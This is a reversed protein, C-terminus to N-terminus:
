IQYKISGDSNYEAYKVENGTQPGKEFIYEVYGDPHYSTYKIQKDTEPDYEAIYSAVGDPNYKITKTKKNNENLTTVSSLKDAFIIAHENNKFTRSYKMSGNLHYSTHKTPQLDAAYETIFKISGNDYYGEEKTIKETYPNCETICSILGNNKYVTEKALKGTQSDSEIIRKISNDNFYDTIKVVSGEQQGYDTISYSGDTNETKQNHKKLFDNWSENNYNGSNPNKNQFEFRQQLRSKAGNERTIRQKQKFIASKQDMKDMEKQKNEEIYDLNAQVMADQIEKIKARDKFKQDWKQTEQEREESTAAKYDKLCQDNKQKIDELENDNKHNKELNELFADHQDKLYQDYNDANPKKPNKPKPTRETPSNPENSKTNTVIFYGAIAVIIATIVVAVIIFIKKNPNSPKPLM